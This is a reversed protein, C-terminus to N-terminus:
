KISKMIKNVAIKHGTTRGAKIDEEARKIAKTIELTEMLQEYENVDIIVASGKGNQTILVPRKTDKAKKIVESVNYRFESIPVIDENLQIRNLM